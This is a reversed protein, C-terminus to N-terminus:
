PFVPESPMTGLTRSAFEFYDILKDIDENPVKEGEEAALKKLNELFNKLFDVEVGFSKEKAYRFSIEGLTFGEDIDLIYGETNIDETNIGAVLYRMGLTKKLIKVGKEFTEDTKIRRSKGSKIETLAFVISHCLFKILDNKTLRSNPFCGISKM